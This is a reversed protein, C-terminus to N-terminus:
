SKSVSIWTLFHKEDFADATLRHEAFQHDNFSRFQIKLQHRHVEPLRAYHIDNQKLFQKLEKLKWIRAIPRICEFTKYRSKEKEHKHRNRRQKSEVSRHQSHSKTKLKHLEEFCELVKSWLLPYYHHDVHMQDRQLQDTTIKFDILSFNMEIALDNLTNTYIHNNNSLSDTSSFKSSTKLCPFPISIIISTKHTLTPHNSRIVNVFNIIQNLIEHAFTTRISNTGILFLVSQRASLHHSIEHSNIRSQACLHSNQHNYWQLGSIYRTIISFRDNSFMPPFSKGHSDTLVFFSPRITDSSSFGLKHHSAISSSQGLLDSRFLQFFISTCLFLYDLGTSSSSHLPHIVHRDSSSQISSQHFTVEIANTLSWFSNKIKYPRISTSCICSNYDNDPDLHDYDDDLDNITVFCDVIDESNSDHITPQHRTICDSEHPHLRNWYERFWSQLNITTNIQSLRFPFVQELSCLQETVNGWAIITNNTSFIQKFLKELLSFRSSSPHPLNAMEIILITSYTESHIAQLYITLPFPTHHSNPISSQEMHVMYLRVSAISNTLCHIISQPTTRNLIIPQDHTFDHHDISHITTSLPRLNQQEQNIHITQTNASEFSNPRHNYVSRHSSHDFQHKIINTPRYQQNNHVLNESLCNTERMHPSWVSIDHSYTLTNVYQHHNYTSQHPDYNIM